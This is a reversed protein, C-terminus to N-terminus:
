FRAEDVQYNYYREAETLERSYVRINCIQYFGRLEESLLNSVGDHAVKECSNLLRGKDKNFGSTMTRIFAKGQRFIIPASVM